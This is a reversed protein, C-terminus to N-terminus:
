PSPTVQTDPEATTLPTESTPSTWAETTATPAEDSLVGVQPAVVLPADLELCPECVANVTGDFLYIQGDGCTVPFRAPFSATGGSCPFEYVPFEGCSPPKSIGPFEVLGAVEALGICTPGCNVTVSEVLWTTASCCDNGPSPRPACECNEGTARVTITAVPSCGTVTQAHATGSSVLQVVPTTWAMVGAAVAAKKLAARRDVTGSEDQSQAVGTGSSHDRPGPM